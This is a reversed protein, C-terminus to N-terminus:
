TVLPGIPVQYIPHAIMLPLHPLAADLTSGLNTPPLSMFADICLGGVQLALQWILFDVKQLAISQKFYDPHLHRMVIQGSVLLFPVSLHFDTWLTLSWNSGNSIEDSSHTSGKVRGGPVRLNMVGQINASIDIGAIQSKVKRKDLAREM